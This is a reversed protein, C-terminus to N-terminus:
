ATKKGTKKDEEQSIQFLGWGMGASTKSDPRGVGIGVQQGVRMMLNAVDALSFMDADFRVRVKAQWGPNWMAYNRLDCVGTALRVYQESPHPEGKTIRVLPTGDETDFGDAEIYIGLKALTMKFGVTRCASIMANRIASAPIGYWSIKKGDFVKHTAGEFEAQMDRAERKAGKKATSGAAQKERMSTKAKASFKQQVYPVDGTLHFEAWKFNPAGITISEQTTKM